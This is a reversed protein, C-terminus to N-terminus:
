EAKLLDYFRRKFFIIGQLVDYQILRREGNSLLRFFYALDRSFLLVRSPTSNGNETLNQLDKSGLVCLEVTDALPALERRVSALIADDGLNGFGYYGCLLMRKKRQTHTTKEKNKKQAKRM